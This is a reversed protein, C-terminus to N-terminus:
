HDGGGAGVNTSSLSTILPAAYNPEGGSSARLESSEGQLKDTSDPMNSRAPAKETVTDRAPSRRSTNLDQTRPIQEHQSELQIKQILNSVSSAFSDFQATREIDLIPQLASLDTIGARGQINDDIIYGGSSRRAEAYGLRTIGLNSLMGSSLVPEWYIAMLMTDTGRAPVSGVNHRSYSDNSKLIDWLLSLDVTDVIVADIYQSDSADVIQHTVEYLEETGTLDRASVQFLRAIIPDRKHTTRGDITGGDISDKLDTTGIDTQAQLGACILALTLLVSNKRLNYGM